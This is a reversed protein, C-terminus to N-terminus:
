LSFFGIRSDVVVVKDGDVGEVEFEDRIEENLGDVIVGRDRV